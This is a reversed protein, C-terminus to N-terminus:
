ILLNNFLNMIFCLYLQMQLVLSAFSIQTMFLGRHDGIAGDSAMLSHIWPGHLAMPHWTPGDSAMSPWRLGHMAWALKTHRSNYTVDNKCM